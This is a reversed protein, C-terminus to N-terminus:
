WPLCTSWRFTDDSWLRSQPFRFNQVYACLLCCAAQRNNGNGLINQCWAGKFDRKVAGRWSSGTPCILKTLSCDIQKCGDFPVYRCTAALSILSKTLPLHLWVRTLEFCLSPTSRNLLYISLHALVSRTTLNRSRHLYPSGSLPHHFSASYPQLAPLSSDFPYRRRSPPRSCILTPLWLPWCTLFAVPLSPLLCHFNFGVILIANSYRRRRPSM